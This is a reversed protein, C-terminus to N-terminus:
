LVRRPEDGLVTELRQRIHARNTGEGRRCLLSQVRWYQACVLLKRIAVAIISQKDIQPAIVALWLVERSEDIQALHHLCFRDLKLGFM